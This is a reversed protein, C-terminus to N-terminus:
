FVSSIVIYIGVAFGLVTEVRLLAYGFGPKRLNKVLAYGFGATVLIGLVLEFINM